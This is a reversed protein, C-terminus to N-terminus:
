QTDGCYDAIAARLIDICRPSTYQKVIRHYIRPQPRNAEWDWLRGSPRGGWNNVDILRETKRDAGRNPGVTYGLHAPGYLM